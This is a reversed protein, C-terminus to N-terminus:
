PGTPASAQTLRRISEDVQHRREGYEQTRIARPADTDACSLLPMVTGDPRADTTVGAEWSPQRMERWPRGVTTVQLADFQVGKTRLRCGYHQVCGPQHCVTM